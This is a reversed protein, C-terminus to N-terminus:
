IGPCSETSDALGKALLNKEFKLVEDKTIFDKNDLNFKYFSINEQSIWGIKKKKEVM